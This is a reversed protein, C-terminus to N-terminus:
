ALQKEFYVLTWHWEPRTERGTEVYGLSEYFAIAEPQNTATDLHLAAFGLERADRELAAMLARGVGQRRTAPHVRVRLVEARWEDTARLGGMGVLHGDGDEVVLFRDFSGEVDGLDPFAAPPVTPEPLELPMSPDATEGVTPIDNLAWVRRRDGADYPRVHM